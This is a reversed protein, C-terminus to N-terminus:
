EDVDFGYTRLYVIAIQLLEPYDQLFGLGSNCHRCLMARVHGTTHDHDVFLNDGHYEGCIECMGQQEGIMEAREESTLRYKRKLLYGRIKGPERRKYARSKIMIEERNKLYYRRKSQRRLSQQHRQSRMYHDHKPKKTRESECRKCLNSLGHRKSNDVYFDAQTLEYRECKSCYFYGNSLLKAM